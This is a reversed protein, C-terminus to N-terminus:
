KIELGIRKILFYYLIGILFISIILGLVILNIFEINGLFEFRCVFLFSISYMISLLIFHYLLHKLGFNYIRKEILYRSYIIFPIGTIRSLGVGIQGLIPAFVLIGLLNTLSLLLSNITNFRVFGISNLFYHPVVGLASVSIAIVLMRLLFSYKSAFEPSIWLRLIDESFIFMPIGISAICILVINSAKIYELLVDSNSKNRQMASFKAFLYAGAAAPIEHIKIALQMCVTYYGLFKTGLLTSILLKDGQTYLANIIVQFWSYLSYSLINKGIEKDYYFQYNLEPTIKKSILYTIFMTIATMILLNLILVKINAFFMVLTTNVIVTLLNSIINIKGNIDYRQKAMFTASFVSNIIRLGVILGLIYINNAIDEVYIPSDVFLKVIERGFLLVFVNVFLFSIISFSFTVNVIRKLYEINNNVVQEAGLKILSNGLGFNSISLIGIISNILVWLGYNSPGLNQLLIPTSVLIVLPSILYSLLNYFINKVDSNNRLKGLYKGIYSQM